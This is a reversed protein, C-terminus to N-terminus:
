SKKETQPSPKETQKGTEAKELEREMKGGHRQFKTTVAFEGLKHGVMEERIKVEIFEKGGHVLFTLGVMEPNIVSSRAWTRIPQKEREQLVRKVKKELKSNIYHGKKLSRAM